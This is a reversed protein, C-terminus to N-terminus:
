NDGYNSESYENTKRRRGSIRARKIKPLVNKKSIDKALNPFIEKEHVKMNEKTLLEVLARGSATLLNIFVTPRSTSISCFLASFM